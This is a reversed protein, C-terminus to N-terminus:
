EKEAAEPLRHAPPEEPTMSETDKRVESSKYLLKETQESSLFYKEPADPIEDDCLGSQETEAKRRFSCM